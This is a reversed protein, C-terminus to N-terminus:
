QMWVWIEAALYLWDKNKLNRSKFHHWMENSWLFCLELHLTISIILFIYLLLFLLSSIFLLVYQLIDIKFMFMCLSYSSIYIFSQHLNLNRSSHWDFLRCTFKCVMSLFIMFIFYDSRFCYSMWAFWSNSTCNSQFNLYFCVQLGAASLQEDLIRYEHIVWNTRRGQPAHGLHFVLTRVMGVVNENYRVPRDKGTTKWYGNETARKMRVGCAYKKERPCFFFWELDRSKM